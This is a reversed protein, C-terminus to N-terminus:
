PRHIQQPHFPKLADTKNELAHILHLSSAAYCLYDEMRLYSKAFNEANRVIQQAMTDHAKLWLVQFHMNFAKKSVICYDVYLANLISACFLVFCFCLCCRQFDVKVKDIIDSMSHSLPVYHVWPVLRASFHYNYTSMQLLVVAGSHALLGALRGSSSMDESGVPVVVYKYRHPVYFKGTAFPLIPQLYGPHNHESANKIVAEATHFVQEDSLPNWPEMTNGNVAFSVDLLDPRLAASDFVLQRYSQFSAFFAAKPIRNAWPTQEKNYFADSYNNNSEARREYDMELTYSEKWPFPIDSHQHTPAFSFVPFPLHIKSFAREGGFFFVSDGIDKVLRLVLELLFYHDTLKFDYDKQNIKFREVGWPWDYYVANDIVRLLIPGTFRGWVSSLDHLNRDFGGNKFKSVLTQCEVWPHCKTEAWACVHEITRQTPPALKLLSWSGRNDNLEPEPSACQLHKQFDAFKVMKKKQVENDIPLGSKHNSTFYNILRLRGRSVTQNTYVDRRVEYLPIKAPFNYQTLDVPESACLQQLTVCGLILVLVAGSFIM